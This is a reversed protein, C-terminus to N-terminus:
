SRLLARAPDLGLLSRPAGSPDRSQHSAHREHANGGCCLLVDAREPGGHCLMTLLGGLTYAEVHEFGDAVGVHSVALTKLTDLPSRPDADAM